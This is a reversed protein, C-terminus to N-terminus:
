KAEAEGGGRPSNPWVSQRMRDGYAVLNPYKRVAELLPSRLPAFLVNALFGYVSADVLGPSYGKFYPKEGLIASLAAIDIAGKSYIEEDTHRSIGQSVLNREVIKRIKRSFYPELLSPIHGFVLPRFDAWGTDDIWRSHMLVFYLHEEVMRRVLIGIADDDDDLDTALGNEGMVQQVRGIIIESDGIVNNDITAYPVKNKPGTKIFSTETEYSIEKMRLWTELKLGFPSPQMQLFPPFQHITISPTNM